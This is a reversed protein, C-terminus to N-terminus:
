QEARNSKRPAAQVYAIIRERLGPESASRVLASLDADRTDRTTIELLHTVSEAPLMAATQLARDRVEQWGASATVEQVLGLEKAVRADYSKGQLLWERSKEDGIRNALRRTGLAVRFKWGPMRFTTEPAAVRMACACFLDAGAGIANGQALALTMFPAHFVRQLMLEIRVMRLVLEADTSYELGALDFGGCFNPGNGSFVALRVGLTAKPDLAALLEEVMDASLSNAREPRNLEICLVPGERSVSVNSM